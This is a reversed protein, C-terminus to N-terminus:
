SEARGRPQEIEIAYETTKAVGGERLINQVSDSRETDTEMEGEEEVKKQRKDGGKSGARVAGPGRSQSRVRVRMSTQRRWGMYSPVRGFDAEERGGNRVGGESGDEL